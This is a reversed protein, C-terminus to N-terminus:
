RRNLEKGLRRSKTRAVAKKSEEVAKRDLEEWDFNTNNHNFVERDALQNAFSVVNHEYLADYYEVDAKQFEESALIEEKSMGSNQMKKVIENLKRATKDMVKIQEHEEQGVEAKGYYGTNFYDVQINSSDYNYSDHIKQVKDVIEQFEPKLKKIPYNRTTLDYKYIDRERGLGYIAINVSNDPSTTSFKLEKPLYGSAVANKLDQRILKAADTNSLYKDPRKSGKWGETGYGPITIKDGPEVFDTKSKKSTKFSGYKESLMQQARQEAEEKTAYHNDEGSEGGFPCKGKEAGCPGSIDNDNIHFKSM